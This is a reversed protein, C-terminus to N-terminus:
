IGRAENNRLQKLNKNRKPSKAKWRKRGEEIKDKLRSM